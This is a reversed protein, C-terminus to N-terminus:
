NFRKHENNTRKIIDGHYVFQNYKPKIITLNIVKTNKSQLRKTPTLSSMMPLIAEIKYFSMSVTVSFMALGLVLIILVM